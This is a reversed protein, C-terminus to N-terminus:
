KKCAPKYPEGTLYQDWEAETLSRGALDCARRLWSDINTDWASLDGSDYGAMLRGGDPAFALSTVPSSIGLLPEGIPQASGMDWLVIYGHADGSALISGDRNFALSTVAALKKKLLNLLKGSSLDWVEITHDSGGAALLSGGPHFALSTIPGDIFQPFTGIYPFAVFPGPRDLAQGSTLDRFGIANEICTNTDQNKLTCIGLAAVPSGPQIALSTLTGPSKEFTSYNNNQSTSTPFAETTVVGDERGRVLYAGAPDLISFLTSERSPTYDLQKSGDRLDISFVRVYTRINLAVKVTDAGTFVISQVQGGLNPYYQYFPQQENLEFLNIAANGTGWAILSPKSARFALNVVVSDNEIPPSVPQFNKTDVLRVMRDFGAMGLVRSDPSFAVTLIDDQSTTIATVQSSAKEWVMVKKDATGKGGIALWQGNPSWALSNVYNVRPINYAIGRGAVDWVHVTDISGGAALLASDPSWALARLDSGEGPDFTLPDHYSATEFLTVTRNDGVVALYKGNPSFALNLISSHTTALKSRVEGNKPDVLYVLNTSGGVALTNGDPSFALATTKPFFQKDWIQVQHDIDWLETTDSYTAWALNQSNPQFAVMRITSYQQPIRRNYEVVSQQLNHQLGALVANMTQLTPSIHYSEISLLLSLDPRYNVNILSNSILSNLLALKRQRDAEAAAQEARQREAEATAKQQLADHSAKEALAAQTQAVNQQHLAEAALTGSRLSEAEITAKSSNALNSATSAVQAQREAVGQANTATAAQLEAMQANTSSQFAFFIATGLLIVAVALAATLLVARQRLTHGLRTQEELKIQNDALARAEKERAEGEQCERLYDEEAPSMEAANGQAWTEAEALAAGRLLLAKNQGSEQFLAAQRQLMSLNEQFWEANSKQVPQVLRDHSLELWFAGGRKETRVLHARDLLQIVQNSLGESEESGVLAQSRIGQKTILKREFWDRIHRERVSTQAAAASVREAYYQALARDVNGVEALDAEDILADAPDLREWLRFCVVQLQVPEIYPGPLRDIKGDPRQVQVQRLDDVLIQAPRRAFEVGAQAAPQQIAKLAAEEGLLDLRFTASFRTPIPLTYPDLAAVYDERMSFLAWRGRDSLMAGVQNFFDQKVQRDTPDLTLIEEFQDLIFVEFAGALPNPRRQLYAELSLGSLEADSLQSEKPYAEELSSLMSYMYRNFDPNGPREPPERNVRILPRVHFEREELEPALAAKILSTKGAGSPSYFLVIREASLLNALKYTERDRGYITEGFDYARPGVYPNPRPNRVSSTDNM